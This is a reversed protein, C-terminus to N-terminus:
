ARVSTLFELLCTRGKLSDAVLRALVLGLRVGTLMILVGCAGGSWVACTGFTIRVVPCVLGVLSWRFRCAVLGGLFLLLVVRLVQLRGAFLFLIAFPLVRGLLLLGFPRGSLLAALLCTRGRLLGALAVVAFVLGAGAVGLSLSGALSWM